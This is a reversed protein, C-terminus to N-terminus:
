QPPAPDPASANIAPLHTIIQDAVAIMREFEITDFPRASFDLILNRGHLLLGVDQPLLGRASTQSLMDAARSDSGFMVFRDSAGLLPFSMLNFLDIASHAAHAPRLGTPPWSSELERILLNWAQPRIAGKERSDESIGFAKFQILTQRGGSLCYREVLEHGKLLNLPPPMSLHGRRLWMGHDRAWDRLAVIYRDDTSRATLVRFVIWASAFIIGLTALILASM